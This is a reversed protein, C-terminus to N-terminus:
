EGALVFRDQSSRVGEASPVSVVAGGESNGAPSRFDTLALVIIGPGQERSKLRLQIFDTGAVERRLVRESAASLEKWRSVATSGSFRSEFENTAFYQVIANDTDAGRGCTIIVLSTHLTPAGEAASQPVDEARTALLWSLPCAGYEAGQPCGEGVEGGLCLVGDADNAPAGPIGVAEYKAVDGDAGILTAIGRLANGSTPAGGRDLQVCDLTGRFGEPMPPIRGPDFGAGDCDTVRPTTDSGNTCVADSPDVSRGRSVVWHTTQRAMLTLDFSLAAADGEGSTYACRAYTVRTSRNALQIVTDRDGDTTVFPFFLISAGGGATVQATGRTAVFSLAVAVAVLLRAIHPAM